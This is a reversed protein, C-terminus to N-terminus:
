SCIRAMYRGLPLLTAEWEVNGVKTLEVLGARAWAQLKQYAVAVDMGDADQLDKIQIITTAMSYAKCRFSRRRGLKEVLEPLSHTYFQM